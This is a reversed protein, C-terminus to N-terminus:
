WWTPATPSPPAGDTVPFPSDLVAGEQRDDERTPESEPPLAPLATARRCLGTDRDSATGSRQPSAAVLGILGIGASLLAVGRM